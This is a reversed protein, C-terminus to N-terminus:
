DNEMKIWGDTRIQSKGEKTNARNIMKRDETVFHKRSSEKCTRMVTVIVNKGVDM